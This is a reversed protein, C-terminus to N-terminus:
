PESVETATGCQLPHSIAKGVAAAALEKVSPYAHDQGVAVSWDCVHCYVLIIQGPVTEALTITATSDDDSTTTM